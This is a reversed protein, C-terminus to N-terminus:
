TAVACVTLLGAILTLRVAGAHRRCIIHLPLLLVYSDADVPVAQDGGPLGEVAQTSFTQQVCM